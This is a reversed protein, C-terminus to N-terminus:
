QLFSKEYGYVVRHIRNRVESFEVESMEKPFSMYDGSMKLHKYIRVLYRKFYM